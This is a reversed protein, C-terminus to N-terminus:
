TIDRHVEVRYGWLRDMEEDTLDDVWADLDAQAAKQPAFMAFELRRRHEKGQRTSTEQRLKM